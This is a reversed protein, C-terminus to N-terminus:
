GSPGPGLGKTDLVLVQGVLQWPLRCRALMRRHGPRSRNSGANEPRPSPRPRRDDAPKPPPRPGGLPPKPLRPGAPRLRPRGM